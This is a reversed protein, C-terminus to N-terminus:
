QGIFSRKIVNAPLVGSVIWKDVNVPVSGSLLLYYLKAIEKEDWWLGKIPFALETFYSAETLM